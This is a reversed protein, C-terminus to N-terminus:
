KAPKMDYVAPFGLEKLEGNLSELMAGMIVAKRGRYIVDYKTTDPGAEEFGYKDLVADLEAQVAADFGSTAREVWFTPYDRRHSTVGVKWEGWTEDFWMWVTIDKGVRRFNERDNWADKLLGVATAGALDLAARAKDGLGM